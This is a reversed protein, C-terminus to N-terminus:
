SKIRIASKLEDLLEPDSMIFDELFEKMKPVGHFREVVREVLFSVAEDLTDFEKSSLAELEDQWAKPDPILDEPITAQSDVPIKARKTSKQESEVKKKNATSM